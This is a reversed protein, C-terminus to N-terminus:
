IRFYIYNSTYECASSGRYNAYFTIQKVMTNMPDREFDARSRWIWMEDAETFIFYCPNWSKAFLSWLDMRYLCEGSFLIVVENNSEEAM